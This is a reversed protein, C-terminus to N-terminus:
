HIHYLCVDVDFKVNPVKLPIHGSGFKQTEKNRGEPEMYGFCITNKLSFASRVYYVVSM